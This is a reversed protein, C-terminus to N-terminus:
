STVQYAWIQHYVDPGATPNLQLKESVEVLKWRGKTELTEQKEKFGSTEYAGTHLTFVIHGSPKTIRVLEDLSSAPAHGITLVGVCITADFSDTVFDLPEGLVMQYLERYVKKRRAENLMSRSLDIAILNSYGLRTLLEGVLGTGAGADLIKAEKDVYRTFSEVSLEPGRSQWEQELEYDYAKAWQDYRETLEQNNRSSYIWRLREQKEM